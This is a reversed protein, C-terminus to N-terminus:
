SSRGNTHLIQRLINLCCAWQIDMDSGMCVVPMINTSVPCGKLCDPWRFRWIRLLCVSLASSGWAHEFHECFYAVLHSRSFCKLALWKFPGCFRGYSYGLYLHPKVATWGGFVDSSLPNSPLDGSDVSYHWNEFQHFALFDDATRHGM